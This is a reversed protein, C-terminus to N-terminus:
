ILFYNRCYVSKSSVFWIRAYFNYLYCLNSLCLWFYSISPFQSNSHAKTSLFNTWTISSNNLLYSWFLYHIFRALLEGDSLNRHARSPTSVRSAAGRVQFSWSFVFEGRALCVTRIKSRTNRVWSQGLKQVLRPVGWQGGRRRVLSRDSRPIM